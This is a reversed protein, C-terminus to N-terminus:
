EKELRKRLIRAERVAKRHPENEKWDVKRRRLERNLKECMANLYQLANDRLYLGHITEIIADAM